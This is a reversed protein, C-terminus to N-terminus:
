ATQPLKFQAVTEQLSLAMKNMSEAMAAVEEGQANLEETSASAGEVAVGNAKSVSAISDIAHTIEISGKAMKETSSTNSEAVVSVASMSRVLDDSFFKMQQSSVDIESVQQNISEVAKLIDVLAEGARETHGVEKKVEQSSEEMALVAETVTQQISRILGGIEKTAASSREALKRVEDAVVAFGAGHEGARAAEIAANLALLNTQSAIDDITEVIIGIQDSHQGMEKVKKASFEVKNKINEMGTVTEEVTRTGARAAQAAAASKNAGSRANNAVQQVALTIQSVIGSTKGIAQAQNMAGQGVENSISAVEEILHSTRTISESQDMTGQAIQQITASIQTTAQSAENSASALQTSVKNLSSANDTVKGIADRLNASMQELSTGVTELVENMKNFSQTMSGLEDRSKVLTTQGVFSINVTLDGEALKQISSILPPLEATALHNVRQSILPIPNIIRQVISFDVAVIGLSILGVVLNKELVASRIRIFDESNINVLTVNVTILLALIGLATVLINLALKFNLSLLGYKEEFPVESLWKELNAMTYGYFPLAFLLIIPIAIIEGLLYEKNSLFSHGLMGTNPGILCYVVESIIYFYPLSAINKQVKTVDYSNSSKLHAAIHNLQNNVWFYVFLIYGIVYAWLLPTLAIKLLEGM